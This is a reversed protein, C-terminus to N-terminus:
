PYEQGEWEESYLQLPSLLSRRPPFLRRDVGGRIGVGSRRVMWGRKAYHATDLDHVAVNVHLLHEADAFPRKNTPRYVATDTVKGVRWCALTQHVLLDDKARARRAAEGSLLALRFTGTVRHVIVSGPARLALTEFAKGPLVNPVYKEAAQVDWVLAVLVDQLVSTKNLGSGEPAVMNCHGQVAVNAVARTKTPDMSWDPPDGDDDEDLNVVVGDVYLDMGIAQLISRYSSYNSNEYSEGTVADDEAGDSCYDAPAAERLPGAPGFTSKAFPAGRLAGYLAYPSEVASMHFHAASGEVKAVVRGAFNAITHKDSGDGLAIPGDPANVAAANQASTASFCRGNPRYVGNWKYVNGGGPQAQATRTACVEITVPHERFRANAEEISFVRESEPGVGPRSGGGEPWRAAMAVHGPKLKHEPRMPQDLSRAAPITFRAGAPHRASASIDGRSAFRGGEDRRRVKAAPTRVDLPGSGPARVPDQLGRWPDSTPSVRALLPNRAAALAM